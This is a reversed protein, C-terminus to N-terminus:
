SEDGFIRGKDVDLYSVNGRTIQERIEVLDDEVMEIALVFLLLRGFGFGMRLISSGVLRFDGDFIGCIEM